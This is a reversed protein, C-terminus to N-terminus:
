ARRGGFLRARVREISEPDSVYRADRLLRELHADSVRATSREGDEPGPEGGSGSDGASPAPSNGKTSSGGESTQGAGGHGPSDEREYETYCYPAVAGDDHRVWWVDGGHGPVPGLVEGAASARRNDLNSPNVIMGATSELKGKTVVREGM